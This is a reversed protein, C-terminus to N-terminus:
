KAKKEVKEEVQPKILEVGSKKLNLVQNTRIDRVMKLLLALGKVIARNISTEDGDKGNSAVNDLKEIEANLDKSRLM